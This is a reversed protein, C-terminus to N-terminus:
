AAALLQHHAWQLAPDSRGRAAPKASTSLSDLSESRAPSAVCAAMLPALQRPMALCIKVAVDRIRVQPSVTLRFSEPILVATLVLERDM